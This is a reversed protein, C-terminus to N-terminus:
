HEFIRSSSRLSMTDGGKRLEHTRNKSLHEPDYVLAPADVRMWEDKYLLCVRLRGYENRREVIWYEKDDGTITWDRM